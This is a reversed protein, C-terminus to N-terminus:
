KSRLGHVMITCMEVLGQYETSSRAYVDDGEEDPTFDRPLEVSFATKFSERGIIV